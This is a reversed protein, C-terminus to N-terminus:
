SITNGIEKVLLIEGPWNPVYDKPSINKNRFNRCLYSAKKLLKPKKKNIASTYEIYTDSSWNGAIILLKKNKWM